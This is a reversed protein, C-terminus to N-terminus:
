KYYAVVQMQQFENGGFVGKVNNIGGGHVSGYLHITHTGAALDYSASGNMYWAGAVVGVSFFFVYNSYPVFSVGYVKESDDISMFTGMSYALGDTIGSDNSKTIEQIACHYSVNVLADRTLTFTYARLEEIVVAGNSSVVNTLPISDSDIIFEPNPMQPAALCKWLPAEPTGINAELCLSELNFIMLGKAPNAIADRQAINMRPMLFGTNNSQLDLLASPDPNDTGIGVQAEAITLGAM